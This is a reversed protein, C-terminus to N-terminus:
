KANNKGVVVEILDQEQLYKNAVEILNNSTIAKIKEIFNYYYQHSLKYDILIKYRDMISFPGDVSRLFSGMMYNKALKLEDTPIIKERLNSIERYIEILGKEQLQTNIETSIYFCGARIYSELSSHIGYTLGKEERINRMLRSGFYGGLILNLLQISSYDTHTRNFLARGIRIASQVSDQKEIFCSKSLPYDFDAIPKKTSISVPNQSFLQECVRLISEDVRGAILIYKLGKKYNDNFFSVLTERSINEYDDSLSYNGYCSQKGFVSSYFIRRNLFSNKQENVILRQISNTKYTELEKETYVSDSIIEIIYPVCSGFHKKLCYLTVVSDDATCHNQLYAGYYDLKESIQKASYKSTGEALMTNTAVAIANQKQKNIGGDFVLDLRIVDETGANIYHINLGSTLTFLQAQIFNINNIEESEPATKRNISINM